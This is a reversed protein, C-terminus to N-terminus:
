RAALEMAQSTYFGSNIRKTRQKQFHELRPDSALLSALREEHVPIIAPARDGRPFLRGMTHMAGLLPTYPAFTFLISCHTSRALAAVMDVADQARYHILSDMAVTHDFEGLAADWMDGVRFDIRNACPEESTRERALEVLTPSLDVAVVEAGRRAAEIALAGPLGVGRGRSAVDARIARAGAEDIWGAARWRELDRSIKQQYGWM